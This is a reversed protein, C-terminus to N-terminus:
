EFAVDVAVALDEEVTALMRVIRIWRPITVGNGPPFAIRQDHVRDAEVFFEPKVEGTMGGGLLQVDDFAVAARVGIM